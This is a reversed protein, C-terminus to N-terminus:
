GWFSSVAIGQAGAQLADQLDTAKMGGLGYVPCEVLKIMQSFGPWGIGTLEPHTSTAKVPSLMLLDAGLKNAQQMEELSHCSISVLQESTVPLVKNGDELFQTLAQSSLHLGDANTQSLLEAMTALKKPALLLPCSFKQCIPKALKVLKLYDSDTIDKQRFQVVKRSQSLANTLKSKFDDSDSFSGSMMYLEPLDDLLKQKM